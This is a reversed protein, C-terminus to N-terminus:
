RVRRGSPPEIAGTVWVGDLADPAPWTAPRLLACPQIEAGIFPADDRHLCMGVQVRPDGGRRAALREFAELALRTPNAVKDQPAVFIASSGLDVALQFGHEGLFREAAPLVGELDEFLAADLATGGTGDAVAVLLAITSQVSVARVIKTERAAALAAALLSRTEAFREGPQISMARMIVEDLREPIGSAVLSPRPRRAHLHLYQTMTPSPDHFPMRGTLMHFLLGGLAYVDTRPDPRQGQIQEPAMCSPTGLSQNTATLEPALADSIKAIGFDLLVVRGDSCLMINSAKIDRHVVGLDHASALADCIPELIELAHHVGLRGERDIVRALEEGDLMEMCLYPRGDASFGADVLRVINPHQLRQVVQIEREFRALTEVSTALHAHLLKLAGRQGSRAHAVEYVAGFGGSALPRAIVWEGIREGASLERPGSASAHPSGLQRTRDV